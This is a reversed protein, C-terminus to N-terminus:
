FPKDRANKRADLYRDAAQKEDVSGSQSLEDALTDLTNLDIVNMWSSQVQFYNGATSVVESVPVELIKAINGRDALSASTFERVDTEYNSNRWFWLIDGPLAQSWFKGDAAIERARAVLRERLQETESGFVNEGYQPSVGDATLDGAMSRFVDCLLSIDLLDDINPRILGAREDPSMDRMPRVLLWRLREENTTRYLFGSPKVDRARIFIPSADLVARFWETSLSPDGSAFGEEMVDLLQGRLRVRDSESVSLSQTKSVLQGLADRPADTRLFRDLEAREWTAEKPDLAFYAAAFESGSIRHGLADSTAGFSGDLTNLVKRVKPFLLGLGVSLANSNKATKLISDLNAKLSTENNTM